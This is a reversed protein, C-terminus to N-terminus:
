SIFPLTLGGNWRRGNAPICWDHFLKGETSQGLNVVLVMVVVVLM